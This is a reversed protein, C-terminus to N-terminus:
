KSDAAVKKEVKTGYIKTIDTVSKPHYFRKDRIVVLPKMDWGYIDNSTKPVSGRVVPQAVDLDKPVTLPRTANPKSTLVIDLEICL